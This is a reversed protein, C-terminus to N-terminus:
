FTEETLRQTMKLTLQSSTDTLETHRHSLTLGPDEQAMKFSRERDDQHITEEIMIYHSKKTKNDKKPKTQKTQRLDQQIHRRKRGM